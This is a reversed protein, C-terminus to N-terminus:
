PICVCYWRIGTDIGQLESSLSFPLIAIAYQLTINQDPTAFHIRLNM